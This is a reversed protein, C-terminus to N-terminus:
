MQYAIKGHRIVTKVHNMGYHYPIYQVNPIDMLTIDAKKGVELSGAMRDRRISRSSALTAAYLTEAPTMKMHICAISLILNMNQTFSSGPNYDSALAVNLGAEIMKRAPAYNKKGLFFATGPLLVPIVGKEKLASIGADSIMLLHDASVARMRAALEAGGLPTLEDAHLKLGLGHERAATLIKESEEISFVDKETFVDCFEALNEDAVAPIMEHIILDIYAERRNQYEDPVEHAGLFTPVISIPLIEGAKKLIRLSKLEDALSLGYGSKAEITTTGCTLFEMIRKCTLETLEDVSAQRFARVSNRIGGGGAAIEEYSKGAIRMEFEEERTKYFVPHTHPDVYGPLAWCNSADVSTHDPYKQILKDVLDIDLICEANFAISIKERIDLEGYPVDSRPTIIGRSNKLIYTKM